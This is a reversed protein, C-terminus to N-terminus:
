ICKQLFFSVGLIFVTSRIGIGYNSFFVLYMLFAAWISVYYYFKNYTMRQVKHKMWMGFLVMGAVAVVVYYFRINEYTELSVVIGCTICSSLLLLKIDEGIRWDRDATIIFVALVVLMGIFTMWFSRERGYVPVWDDFAHLYMYGTGFSFVGMLCISQEFSQKKKRNSKFQWVETLFFGIIGFMFSFYFAHYWGALTFYHLRPITWNFRIDNSALWSLQVSMGVVTCVVGIITSIKKSQKIYEMINSYGFLLYMVMCGTLLPLCIGDGYTAAKYYFFGPIDPNQIDNLWFIFMVFFGILFIFVSLIVGYIIVTRKWHKDPVM